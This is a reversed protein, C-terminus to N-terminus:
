SKLQKKYTRKVEKMFKKTFLSKYELLDFEYGYDIHYTDNNQMNLVYLPFNVRLKSTSEVKGNKFQHIPDFLLLYKYGEEKYKAVEHLHAIAYEFPYEKVSEMLEKNSKQFNTNYHSLSNYTNHAATFFIGKPKEPLDVSDLQLFIIKSTNLDTPM